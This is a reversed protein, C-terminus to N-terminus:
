MGIANLKSMNARKLEMSSHVYRNLTVTASSHGLIESLSKLEFGVEVCRTAFTHRLTHFHVGDLHCAATYKRLYYQVMRPEMYRPTGTLVFADKSGSKMRRCLQVAQETMPITRISKDSKPPGILIQTKSLSDGSIDKLRQMTAHIHITREGLDIDEWRLACVEGIRLGTLLALLIGFKCPDIDTLLLKTFQQQEAASLVRMERPIEKPYIVEAQGTLGPFQRSTYKIVSKLRTLIDRVTKPTLQKEALLIDSFRSIIETSLATPHYSGLLPKIHNELVSDYKVYTTVYTAPKVRGRTISLWENCYSAFKRPSGSLTPQGSTILATKAKDAKEKAEKYTKGYCFGYKIKGSAAYGKHYRAEWRGDKRKFINEGKAM